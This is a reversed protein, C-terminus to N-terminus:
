LLAAIMKQQFARANNQGLRLEDEHLHLTSRGGAMVMGADCSGCLTTLDHVATILTLGESVM